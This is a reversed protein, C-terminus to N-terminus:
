RSVGLDLTTRTHELIRRRSLAAIPDDPIPGLAQESPSADPDAAAQGYTLGLHHHRWAEVARAQRDWGPANGPDSPRPGLLATLYRAPHNVADDVILDIAASILDHRERLGDQGDGGPGLRRRLMDIQLSEQAHQRELGGVQHRLGAVQHRDPRRRNNVETLSWRAQALRAATQDHASQASSLEATTTAAHRSLNGAILDFLDHKETCLDRLNRRSLSHTEATDLLHQVRDWEGAATEPEALNYAAPDVHHHRLQDNVRHELIAAGTKATDTERETLALYLQQPDVGAALLAHIAATARQRPIHEVV